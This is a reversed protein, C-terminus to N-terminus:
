ADSAPKDKADDLLDGHNMITAFIDRANDECDMGEQKNEIRDILMELNRKSMELQSIVDNIDGIKKKLQAVLEDHKWDSLGTPLLKAIDSLSFGAQQASTIIKLMLVAAPQYSRYGNGTRSVQNLLGKTEYFRIRSRSLGTRESLEGINM